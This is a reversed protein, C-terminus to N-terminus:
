SLFEEVAKEAISITEGARYRGISSIGLLRQGSRSDAVLDSITTIGHKELKEKRARPLPLINISQQMLLNYTSENVLEAGCEMCFKQTPSIRPEGCSKCNPLDVRLDAIKGTHYFEHLGNKRLPHKEQKFAMSDIFSNYVISQGAQFAGHHILLTFHPVFRHYTRGDGHRIENIRKLLGVEELTRIIMKSTNEIQPSVEKDFNIGIVVQRHKKKLSEVNASAIQKSINNIIEIGATIFKKLQPQKLSLSSYEQEILISQSEIVKNVKQQLTRGTSEQYSNLMNILVRPSGFAAYIFLKLIKEDIDFSFRKSYIGNFLTEYDSHIVSPWCDVQEADHGLHFRPGFDTNPYVSAKMSINISKLSRFVDFFEIMYEKNLVLAADDCLVVIQKKNVQSSARELFESVLNVSIFQAIEEHIYSLQQKELQECFLQISEWSLNIDNTKSLPTSIQHGQLHLSDRAAILIKCLIWCHFFEMSRPTINKLPELRLYKSFSVYCTFPLKKSSISRMYALKMHHTKGCGRPGVIVKAGRALLKDLVNQYFPSESTLDSLKSLEIYDARYEANYETSDM